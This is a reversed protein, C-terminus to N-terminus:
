KFFYRNLDKPWIETPSKSGSKDAIRAELKENNLTDDFQYRIQIRFYFGIIDSKPQFSTITGVRGLIFYLYFIICEM